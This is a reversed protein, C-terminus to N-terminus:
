GDAHPVRVLLVPVRSEHILRESISGFILRGVRLGHPADDAAMALLFAGDARKLVEDAVNLGEVVAVTTDIGQGQLWNALREVYRRNEEVETRDYRYGLVTASPSYDPLFTPAGLMAALPRLQAEAGHGSSPPVVHFLEIECDAALAIEAARALVAEGLPTGDLPVLIRRRMGHLM